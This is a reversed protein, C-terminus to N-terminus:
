IAANTTYGMKSICSQFGHHIHKAMMALTHTRRDSIHSGMAAALHALGAAAHSPLGRGRTVKRLM